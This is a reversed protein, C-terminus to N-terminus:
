TSAHQAGQKKLMTSKVQTLYPYWPFNNGPDNHGGYISLARSIDGHGCFGTITKNGKAIARIQSDTLHIPQIHNRWAIDASLIASLSLESRSYADAWDKPLQAAVGAHELSVSVQNMYQQDVAWATDKELVSQFVAHVDINYHPSASRHGDAFWHNVNGARGYTEPTEMSHVVIVQIKHGARGPTYDKAQEFPIAM